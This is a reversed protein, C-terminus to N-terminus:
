TVRELEARALHYEPELLALGGADVAAEFHRRATGPDTALFGAWFHASALRRSELAPNAYGEELLDTEDVKGLLYGAVPAPWQRAVRPRWAKGLLRTGRHVYRPDPIRTGAYVLLAPPRAAGAPTDFAADLAAIWRQAATEREGALWRAAGALELMPGSQAADPADEFAHAADAARGLELLALGRWLPDDERALDEFRRDALLSQLTSEDM